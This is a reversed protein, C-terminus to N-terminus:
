MVVIMKARRFCNHAHARLNHFLLQGMSVRAKVKARYDSASNFTVTENHNLKVLETRLITVKYETFSRIFATDGFLRRTQLLHRPESTRTRIFAPDQILVQRLYVGYEQLL